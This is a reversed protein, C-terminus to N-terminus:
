NGATTSSGEPYETCANTSPTATSWNAQHHAATLPQGGTYTTPPSRRCGALRREGRVARLTPSLPGLPSQHGTHSTRMPCSGSAVPRSGRPRPRHQDRVRSTAMPAMIATPRPRHPPHPPDVLRVVPRNKSLLLTDAVQAEGGKTYPITEWEIDPIAEAADKVKQYQPVTVSWDVGLQKLRKILAYSWFGADTRIMIPGKAGARRVRHITEAIFHVNGARSAGGRLRAGVIEGTDARIALLPHYGCQRTHGYRAGQKQEGHVECITSDVDITLVRDGPSMGPLSWVRKLITGLAKDLQRAHGWTFSRLFTGLTSPAMVRFPLVGQTSGARLRDAHDIHSGGSLMSAALSLVKRGPRAGGARGDLRITEDLLKELGLRKMLSGALLLGADSVLSGDDFRVQLRDIDHSLSNM